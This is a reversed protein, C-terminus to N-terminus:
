LEREYGFERLSLEEDIGEIHVGNARCFGNKEYFRIAPVNEEVVLLRLVEAGKEKAVAAAASLMAGGIGQGSYAPNVALRDIYCARKEGSKWQLGDYRGEGSLSLAGLLKKEKEALYLRGAEIDERLYCCPYVEDWIYLGRKQMDAVTERYLATLRQLDHWEAKRLLM